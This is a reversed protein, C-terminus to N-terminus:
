DARYLSLYAEASHRWSFDTRMGQKVLKMWQKPQRYLEFARQLAQTLAPTSPDSFVFGNAEGRAISRPTADVVTDALGGTERVVPPTGYRLSYM